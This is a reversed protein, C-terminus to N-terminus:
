RQAQWLRLRRLRDEYRLRVPCGVAHGQVEPPDAVLAAVGRSFCDCEQQVGDRYSGDADADIIRRNRVMKAPDTEPGVAGAAPDAASLVEVGDRETFTAQMAERVADDFLRARVSSSRYTM